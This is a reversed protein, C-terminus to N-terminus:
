LDFYAEIAMKFGAIFGTPIKDEIINKMDGNLINNLNNAASEIDSASVTNEGKGFTINDMIKGKLYQGPGDTAGMVDELKALIDVCLAAASAKIQGYNEFELSYASVSWNACTIGVFCNQERYLDLLPIL